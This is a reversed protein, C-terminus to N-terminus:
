HYNPFGLLAPDTSFAPKGSVPLSRLSPNSDQVAVLNAVGLQALGARAQKAYYRYEDQSHKLLVTYFMEAALDQRGMTLAAQGTYLTCAAAMAKPDVALRTPQPSVFQLIPAPLPPVAQQAAVQRDAAVTLRAVAMRMSHLDLGSQCSSYTTWLDMFSAHDITTEAKFARAKAFPALLIKDITQCGSLFVLLGSVLLVRKIVATAGRM